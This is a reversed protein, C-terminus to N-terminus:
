AMSSGMPGPTRDAIPNALGEGLHPGLHQGDDMRLGRGPGPLRDFLQALQALLNSVSSTTSATVESPQMGSFTSAQPMSATYLQVCFPSLQGGPRDGTENLGRATSAIFLRLVFTGLQYRSM